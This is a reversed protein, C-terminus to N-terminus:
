GEVVGVVTNRNNLFSALLDTNLNGGGMFIQMNKPMARQEIVRINEVVERNRSKTNQFNPQSETLHAMYLSTVVQKRDNTSVLAGIAEGCLWQVYPIEGKTKHALLKAIIIHSCSLFDIQNGSRVFWDIFPGYKNFVVTGDNKIKFASSNELYIQILEAFRNKDFEDFILEETNM